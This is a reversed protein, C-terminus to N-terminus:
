LYIKLISCCSCSSVAYSKSQYLSDLVIRDDLAKSWSLASYNSFSYAVLFFASSSLILSSLLPTNLPVLFRTATSLFNEKVFNWSVAWSKSLIHVWCHILVCLLCVFNLNDEQTLKDILYNVQLSGCLRQRYSFSCIEFRDYNKYYISEREREKIM